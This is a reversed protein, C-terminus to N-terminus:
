GALVGPVTPSSPYTPDGARRAGLERLSHVGSAEKCRREFHGVHQKAKERHLGEKGQSEGRSPTWNARGKVLGQTRYM